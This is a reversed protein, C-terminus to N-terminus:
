PVSTLVRHTRAASSTAEAAPKRGQQSLTDAAPPTEDRLNGGAWIFAARLRSANEPDAERAIAEKLAKLVADMSLLSIHMLTVCQKQLIPHGYHRLVEISGPTM